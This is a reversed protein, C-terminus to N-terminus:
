VAVQASLMGRKPYANPSAYSRIETENRPYAESSGRDLDTSVTFVAKMIARFPAYSCASLINRNTHVSGTFDFQNACQRAPAWRSRCLARWTPPTLFAPDLAVHRFLSTTLQTGPVAPEGPSVLGRSFRVRYGIPCGILIPERASCSLWLSPSVCCVLCVVCWCYLGLQLGDKGGM